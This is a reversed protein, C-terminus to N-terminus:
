SSSKRTFIHLFLAFLLGIALGAIAFLLIIKPKNPKSQVRPEPANQIPHVDKQQATVNPTQTQSPLPESSDPTDALKQLLTEYRTRSAAANQQLTKLQTQNQTDEFVANEAKFLRVANESQIVTRRADDIQTLLDQEITQPAQAGNEVPYAHTRTETPEPKAPRLPTQFEAYAAGLVIFFLITGLILKFFKVSARMSQLTGM